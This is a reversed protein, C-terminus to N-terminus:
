ATKSSIQAQGLLPLGQSPGDHNVAFEETFRACLESGLLGAASTGTRERGELRHLWREGAQALISQATRAGAM